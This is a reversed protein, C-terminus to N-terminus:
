EGRLVRRMLRGSSTRPLSDTYEIQRPYEHEALNDRVHKQLASDLSDSASHGPALVVFAKIVEQGDAGPIGVAAADAVAEHSKLCTEIEEPGIRYGEACIVDDNRGQFWFYGDEDTMGMDGTVLWNDIFKDATGDPDRWYELFMVPDPRRIAIHGTKGPPLAHGADDIIAVHHGPIARGMSGPKAPMLAENNGIVMNCETQGYFEAVPVGFAEKGWALLEEGLREGGSALSRLSVGSSRIQELPLERLGRLRAPPIVVNRVKFRAMIDLAALPDFVPMHHALVPLGHFWAPLVAGLLGNMWSWDALSWFLDGDEPLFNHPFEVGPLHGLVIRHGHLAGRPQGETGSTYILLAPDDPLTEATEFRGSTARLGEWFDTCGEPLPQSDTNVVLVNRLDPLQGRIAQIKDLQDASTVLARCGSDKLRFALADNGYLPSLPVSIAGMRWTALHSLAAEPSQPLLIGVRMRRGIGCSGLLSSLQCSIRSLGSFSYSHQRGDEQLCILAPKDGTRRAWRDCVDAAINFRRPIQWRFKGAVAQYNDGPPLSNKRKGIVSAGGIM